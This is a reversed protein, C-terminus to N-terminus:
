PVPKFGYDDAPMLKAVALTFEATTTWHKALSDKITTQAIAPVGLVLIALLKQQM